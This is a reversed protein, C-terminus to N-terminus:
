RERNKNYFYPKSIGNAKQYEKVFKVTQQSTLCAIEYNGNNRNNEAIDKLREDFGVRYGYKNVSMDAEYLLVLMPSIVKESLEDNSLLDYPNTGHYKIAFYADSEPDLGTELLIQSGELEHDSRMNLYGIDHLLGVVYAVDPDVSYDIARERMYEAVGICHAMKYKNLHQKDAEKLNAYM